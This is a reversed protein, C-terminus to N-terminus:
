GGCTDAVEARCQSVPAEWSAKWDQLEWSDSAWLYVWLTEVEVLYRRGSEDEAIRGSIFGEHNEGVIILTFDEGEGILFMGVTLGGPQCYGVDV